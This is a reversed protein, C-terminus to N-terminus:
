NRWSKPNFFQFPKGNNARTFGFVGLMLLLAHCLTFYLILIVFTWPSNFGGALVIIISVMALLVGAVISAFAAQQFHTNVFLPRSSPSHWLLLLILFGIGPLFSLNLLYFIYAFGARRRQSADPQNPDNM